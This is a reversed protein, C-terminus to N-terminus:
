KPNKKPTFEFNVLTKLDVDLGDALEQLYYITPNINGSELHQISQRDKNILCALDFQTFKKKLRTQKVHEGVQKLFIEKKTAL